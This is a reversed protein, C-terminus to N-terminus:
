HELSEDETDTLKAIFSSIKKKIDEPKMGSDIQDQVKVLNSALQFRKKTENESAKAKIEQAESQLERKPDGRIVTAATEVLREVIRHVVEASFGGLMALLPKAFVSAMVDEIPILTALIMGAIIGLIFRVWYSSEYKPDFTGEAIYRNARFLASFATGLGAACLLFLEKLLLDFGTHKFMDWADKESNIIPSLSIGIFLVLCIIAALIMRRIFPVPGLFKFSGKKNSEKDLLLIARPKAPEVIRALRAHLSNLKRTDAKRHLQDKSTKEKGPDVDPGTVTIKQQSITELNEVIDGPVALGSALAYKAMATSEEILQKRIPLSNEQNIEM